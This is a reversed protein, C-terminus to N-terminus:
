LDSYLATWCLKNTTDVPDQDAGVGVTRSVKVNLVVKMRINFCAIWMGSREPISACKNCLIHHDLAVIKDNYVWMLGIGITKICYPMLVGVPRQKGRLFLQSMRHFYVQLFNFPGFCWKTYRCYDIRKLRRSHSCTLIHSVSQILLIYEAELNAPLLFM